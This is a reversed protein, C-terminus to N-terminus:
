AAEALAEMVVSPTLVASGGVFVQVGRLKAVAHAARVESLTVGGNIFLVVDHAGGNAAPGAAAVDPFEGADLRGAAAAELVEYVRPEFRRLRQSRGGSGPVAPDRPSGPARAAEQSRRRRATRVAEERRGDAPSAPPPAWLGCLAARFEPSEPAFGAVDALEKRRAPQVFGDHAAAFFLLLLRLKVAKSQAPDQLFDERLRREAQQSRLERGNSDVGTALDQEFAAVETLKQAQMRRQMQRCIDSHLELRAYREKHEPMAQQGGNTKRMADDEEAFVNVETRIGDFVLWVPEHRHREWLGDGGSVGLSEARAAGADSPRGLATVASGTAAGDGSAEELVDYALAEYCLDHVVCAALDASRDVVLLILPRATAASGDRLPKCPSAGSSAEFVGRAELEGLQVELQKAVLGSVVGSAAHRVRPRAGLTACLTALRSAAAGIAGDVIPLSPASAPSSPAFVGRFVMALDGRPRDLHFARQDYVLFDLNAETFSSIRAVAADSDAVVKLLHEPLRSSFFAHFSRYLPQRPQAEPTESRSGRRLGGLIGSVASAAVDSVSRRKGTLPAGDDERDGSCPSAPSGGFISGSRAFRSPTGEAPATYGAPAGGADAVLRRVNAETPSVFYLAEFDPLHQRESDIHETLYVGNEVLEHNRCASAVSRLTTDDVVLTVYRRAGDAEGGSYAHRVMALTRERFADRLGPPSARAAAM